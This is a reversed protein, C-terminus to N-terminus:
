QSLSTAAQQSLTNAEPMGFFSSRSSTDSALGNTSEFLSKAIIPHTSVAHKTTTTHKTVTTHKTTTHKTMTHKTTNAAHKTAAHNTMTTHYHHAKNYHTHHTREAATLYVTTASHNCQSHNHHVRRRTIPSQLYEGNITCSAFRVLVWGSRVSTLQSECGDSHQGRAM